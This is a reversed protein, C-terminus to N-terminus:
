TKKAKMVKDTVNKYHILFNYKIFAAIDLKKAWKQMSKPYKRTIWLEEVNFGCLIVRNDVYM